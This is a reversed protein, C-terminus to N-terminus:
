KCGFQAAGDALPESSEGDEHNGLIWETTTTPTLVGRVSNALVVVLCIFKALDRTEDGSRIEHTQELVLRM